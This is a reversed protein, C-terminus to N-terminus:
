FIKYNEIILIKKSMKIKYLEEMYIKKKTNLLKLVIFNNYM